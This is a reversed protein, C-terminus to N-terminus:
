TTMQMMQMGLEEVSKVGGATLFNRVKSFGLHRVAEMTSDTCRQMGFKTEIVTWDFGYRSSAGVLSTIDQPLTQFAEVAATAAPLEVEGTGSIQTTVNL